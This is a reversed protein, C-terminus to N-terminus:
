REVKMHTPLQKGFKHQEEDNQRRKEANAGLIDTESTRLSQDMGALGSVASVCLGSTIAKDRPCVPRWQYFM